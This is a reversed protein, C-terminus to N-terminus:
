ESTRLDPAVSLRATYHGEHCLCAGGCDLTGFQCDTTCMVDDCTPANTPAVCAASHCCGAPVCDADSACADESMVLEPTAEETTTDEGGESHDLLIEDESAEEDSGGCAVLLIACMSILVTRM